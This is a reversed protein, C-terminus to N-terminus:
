VRLKGQRVFDGCVDERMVVELLGEEGGRQTLHKMM